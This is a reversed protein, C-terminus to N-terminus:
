ASSDMFPQRNRCYVPDDLLGGIITMGVRAGASRLLPGYIGEWVGRAGLVAVRSATPVTEKLLELLKGVVTEDTDSSFGTLNGGPRAL